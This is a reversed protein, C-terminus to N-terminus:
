AAPGAPAPQRFVRALADQAQDDQGLAMLVRVLGAETASFRALHALAAEHLKARAPAPGAPISARRPRGKSTDPPKAM